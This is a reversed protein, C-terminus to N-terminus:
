FRRLVTVNFATGQLAYADQPIAQNIGGYIVGGNPTTFHQDYVNTLNTGTLGLEYGRFRFGVHADLTAFQAQNLENYLSESVLNFGYTFGLPPASNL